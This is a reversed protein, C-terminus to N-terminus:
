YRYLIFMISLHVLLKALCVMGSNINSHMLKGIDFYLIIDFLCHRVRIFKYM